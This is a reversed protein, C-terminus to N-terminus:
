IRSKRWLLVAAILFAINLAICLSFLYFHLGYRVMAIVAFLLFVFYYSAGLMLRTKQLEGKQKKTVSKKKQRSRKNRLLVILSAILFLALAALLVPVFFRHRTYTDYIYDDVGSLLVVIGSVGGIAASGAFALNFYLRHEVELADMCWIGIILPFILFSFTPELAINIGCLLFVLFFSLIKSRIALTLWLSVATLLVVASQLWIRLPLQAILAYDNSALYLYFAPVTLVLLACFIHFTKNSITKM